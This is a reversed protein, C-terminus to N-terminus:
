KKECNYCKNGKEDITHTGYIPKYCYDCVPYEYFGIGLEECLKKFENEGGDFYYFIEGIQDDKDKYDMDILYAFGIENGHIVGITNDMEGVDGNGTIMEEYYNFRRTKLPIEIVLKNDKKYIKNM